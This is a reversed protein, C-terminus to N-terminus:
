CQLAHPISQPDVPKEEEFLQGQGLRGEGCDGWSFLMRRDDIAVSHKLGLAVVKVKSVGGLPCPYERKIKDGLGLQGASNDGWM